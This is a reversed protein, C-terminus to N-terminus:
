NKGGPRKKLQQEVETLEKQLQMLKKNKKKKEIINWKIISGRIVAKFADWVLSPKLEPSTNIEFYEKIDRKLNEVIEANHLLDKNLRWRKNCM